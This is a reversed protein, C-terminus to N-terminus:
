DTGGIVTVSSGSILDAPLPDVVTAGQTVGEVVALGGGEALVVVEHAVASGGQVVFVLTQAGSYRIASVPVTVGEALPVQYTMQTVTGNPIRSSSEYITATMEVLRSQN